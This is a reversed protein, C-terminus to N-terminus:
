SRRPAGAQSTGVIIRVIVPRHDSGYLDPMTLATMSTVDRAVAGDIRELALQGGIARALGSVSLRHEDTARNNHDGLIVFPRDDARAASWRTLLKHEDAWAQRNRDRQADPGGPCRHVGVLDWLLRDHRVTVRPYVRPPHPRGHVPGIWVGGAVQQAGHGRVRVDDRVLLVTSRSERHPYLRPSAQFRRYHRVRGTWDWVEQLSVAEPYGGDDLVRELVGSLEDGRGIHPNWTLTRLQRTM